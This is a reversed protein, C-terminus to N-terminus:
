GTLEPDIQSPSKVLKGALAPNMEGIGASPCLRAIPCVGCAPRKAHCMRRGHWIVRHSM